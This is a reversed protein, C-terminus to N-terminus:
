GKPWRGAAGELLRLADARLDADVVEDGLAEIVPKLAALRARGAAVVAASSTERNRSTLDRTIDAIARAHGMRALAIKAHFGCTDRLFGTIGWARRELHSSLENMGLEGALEVAEREDEKDARIEGRVVRALLPHGSREGIKALFIAAALAVQRTKDRLLDEARPVLQDWPEAWGEQVGGETAEQSAYLEDLREEALRLAIHRIADDDDDLARRLLAAVDRADKRVRSLAIIGQYRVEPRRDSAARELRPAAREDGIEGLANLAMQRVHIDEDEIAVLLTQLAEHASVDGLAVAAAARVESAADEALAKEFLPIAKTRVAEDARAHRILDAIAGRRMVARTSSLDRLSAELTRPLPPPSFV